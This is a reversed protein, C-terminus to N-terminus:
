RISQRGAGGIALCGNRGGGLYHALEPWEEPEQLFIDFLRWRMITPACPDKEPVDALVMRLLEWTMEAPLLYRINAAIGNYRATQLSLWRGMGINHVVVQEKDMVPLPDSSQIASFYRALQDLQNSHHLYLM